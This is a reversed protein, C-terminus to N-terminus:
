GHGNDKAQLTEPYGTPIINTQTGAGYTRMKDANDQATKLSAQPISVMAIAKDDWAATTILLYHPPISQTM